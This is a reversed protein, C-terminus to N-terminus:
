SKACGPELTVLAIEHFMKESIRVQTKMVEHRRKKGAPNGKSKPIKSKDKNIGYAQSRKLHFNKKSQLPIEPTQFVQIVFNINLKQFVLGKTIDMEIYSYGSKMM